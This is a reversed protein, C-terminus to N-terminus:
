NGCVRANDNPRATCVRATAHAAGPFRLFHNQIKQLGADTIFRDWQLVSMQALRTGSGSTATPEIRSSEVLCDMMSLFQADSVMFSRITDPPTAVQPDAFQDFCFAGEPIIAPAATM